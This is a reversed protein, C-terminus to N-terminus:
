QVTDYHLANFQVINCQVTSFYGQASKAISQVLGCKDAVLLYPGSRPGVQPLFSSMISNEGMKPWKRNETTVKTVNLLLRLFILFSYFFDM